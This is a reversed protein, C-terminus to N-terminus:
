ASKKHQRDRWSLLEARSFRVCKSSFRYCPIKERLAWDLITRRSIALVRGAERADILDGIHKSELIM